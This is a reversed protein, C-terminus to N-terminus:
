PFHQYSSSSLGILLHMDFKCILNAAKSIIDYHCSLGIPNITVVYLIKPQTGCEVGHALCDNATEVGEVTQSGVVCKLEFPNCGM